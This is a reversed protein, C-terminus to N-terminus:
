HASNLCQNRTAKAAADLDGSKLGKGNMMEKSKETALLKFCKKADAAMIKDDSVSVKIKSVAILLEGLAEGAARDENEHLHMGVSGIFIWIGFDSAMAKRLEKKYYITKFILLKMARNDYDICKNALPHSYFKTFLRDAKVMINMTAMVDKSKRLKMMEQALPFVDSFEKYLEECEPDTKMLNMKQVTGKVIEKRSTNSEFKKAFSLFLEGFQDKHRGATPLKTPSGGKQLSGLLASIDALGGGRRKKSLRSSKKSSLLSDLNKLAGLAKVGEKFASLDTTKPKESQQSVSAGVLLLCVILFIAKQLM